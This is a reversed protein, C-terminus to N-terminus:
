VVQMLNKNVYGIRKELNQKDKNCQNIHILTTAEPITKELYNVKTKLTNSKTNKAVENEVVDSLKKLYVPVTKLTGVDLHFVKTKLNNLSTPVHVLKNIGFKDDEAKLALFYTKLPQILHTLAKIM